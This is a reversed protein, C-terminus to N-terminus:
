NRSDCDKHYNNDDRLRLLYDLIAGTCKRVSAFDTLCFTKNDSVIVFGKTKLHRTITALNYGLYTLQTAKTM